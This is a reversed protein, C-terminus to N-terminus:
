ARVIAQHFLKYTLLVISTVCAAAVHIIQQKSALMTPSSMVDKSTDGGDKM